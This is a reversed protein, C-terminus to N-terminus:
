GRRRKRQTAAPVADLFLGALEDAYPNRKVELKGLYIQTTAINKHGLLAQIERVDAGLQWMQQAFTHRLQHPHLGLRSRIISWVAQATLPASRQGKLATFLPDHDGLRGWRGDALLAAQLATWAERPLEMTLSDGGKTRGIHVIPPKHTDPPVRRQGHGPIELDGWRLTAIEQLRRGTLLYCLILARDRLGAVDRPILNLMARLDTSHGAKSTGYAEVKSRDVALAPNFSALPRMAGEVVVMHKTCAFAYLSSVVAVRHNVTAKAPPNGDKRSPSTAFALVDQPLVDAPHKPCAAFFAALTREYIEATRDSESRARKRELWATACEQWLHLPSQPGHPTLTTSM